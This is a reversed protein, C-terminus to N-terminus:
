EAEKRIMSARIWETARRSIETNLWTGALLIAGTVIRVIFPSVGLLNLGNGLFKVFLAGVVTGLMTAEGGALSTGGLVVATIVDLELYEGTRPSGNGLHATILLGALGALMGTVMYVLFKIKYIRIGLVRAAEERGGVALCHIGFRTKNLVIGGIGVIAIAIIIPVHIPGVHGRGLTLFSANYIPVTYGGTITLALGRTLILTALTVVFPPLGRLSVFYGNLSGVLSGLVVGLLIIIPIPYAAQILLGTVVSTLAVTSGVSLDIGRTTIVFTMGVGIIAVPAAQRLVNLINYLSLFYPRAVYGFICMYLVWIVLITHRVALLTLKGGMGGNELFASRQKARAEDSM